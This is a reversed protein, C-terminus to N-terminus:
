KYCLCRAQPADPRRAQVSRNFESFSATAALNEAPQFGAPGVPLIGTSGEASEHKRAVDSVSLGANHSKEGPLTDDRKRETRQQKAYGALFMRDTLHGVHL